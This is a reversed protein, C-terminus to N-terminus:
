RRFRDFSCRVDNGVSDNIRLGSCEVIFFTENLNSSFSGFTREGREDVLPKPVVTGRCSLRSEGPSVEFSLDITRLRCSSIRRLLKSVSFSSKCNFSGDASFSYGFLEVGTSWGDVSSLVTKRSPNRHRFHFRGLNSASRNTSISCERLITRRKDFFLISSRDFSFSIQVITSDSPRALPRVAVDGRVVRVNKRGEGILTEIARQWRDFLRNLKRTRVAFLTKLRTGVFEIVASQM